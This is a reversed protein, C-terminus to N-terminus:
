LVPAFLRAVSEFIKERKSRFKWRRIAEDTSVRLDKIFDMALEKVVDRDYIILSVEFNQEFSRLDMNATGVSAVNGDVIIM